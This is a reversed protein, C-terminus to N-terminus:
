NFSDLWSVVMLIVGAAVALLLVGIIAVRDDRSRPTDAPEHRDVPEPGPDYYPATPPAEEAPIEPPAMVVPPPERTQAPEPAPSIASAPRRGVVRGYAVVFAAGLAPALGALAPANIELWDGFVADTSAMGLAIWGLLAAGLETLWPARRLLDALMVGGFAIIPLSLAVGLALWVLNGRAIAALAVVNDLSMTTDAILIIAAASWLSSGPRAGHSSNTLEDGDAINLAILILTAAGILKLFPVALLASAVFALLTRIVVAGGVGIMAARRTEAPPLRRCALAIVLANDAGLLLDVILIQLPIVFWNSADEFGM